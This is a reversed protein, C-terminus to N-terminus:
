GLSNVQQQLSNLKSTLDAIQEKLKAIEESDKILDGISKTGDTEVLSINDGVISINKGTITVSEESAISVNKTANVTYNEEVSVNFFKSSMSSEEKGTSLSFGPVNIHLESQIEYATNVSTPKSNAPAGTAYQLEIKSGKANYIGACRKWVRSSPDWKTFVHFGDFGSASSGIKIEPKHPENLELEETDGSGSDLIMVNTRDQCWYFSNRNKETLKPIGAPLPNRLNEFPYSDVQEKSWKLEEPLDTTNDRGPIVGIIFPEQSVTSDLYFGVVWEGVSPRSYATGMVAPTMHMAWPLEDTKILEKDKGPHQGLIRVRVRGMLQPDQNSEVVGIFWVFKDRGIYM